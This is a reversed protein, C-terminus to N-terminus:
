FINLYLFTVTKSILHCIQMSPEVCLSMTYTLNIGSTFNSGSIELILEVRGDLNM